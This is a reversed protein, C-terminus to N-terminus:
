RLRESHSVSPRVKDLAVEFHRQHICYNVTFSSESPVIEMRDAGPIVKMPTRVEHLVAMGAERLLASLDAGSYGTIHGLFNLFRM